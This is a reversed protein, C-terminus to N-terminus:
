ESLLLFYDLFVFLIELVIQLNCLLRVELDADEKPESLTEKDDDESYEEEGAAVDDLIVGRLVFGIPLIIRGLNENGNKGRHKGAHLSAGTFEETWIGFICAM